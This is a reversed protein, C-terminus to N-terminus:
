DLPRKRRGPTNRFDGESLKQLLTKYSIKLLRAAAARNWGVRELAERLAAQEAERAARRGIERLGLGLEMREGNKAKMRSRLESRVQDEDGLVIWRKVLNELERVNGPWDYAGFLELLDNAIQPEPRNFEGAFRRRFHEVLCPIEERRERLPPVALSVVTLLRYLDQRFVSATVMAQIDRASSALIRVDISILERGGARFLQNDQLAHVIRPQLGAPLDGIEELLLTGGDALELKGLKHPTGHADPEHGFIEAELLDAPLSACSVKQWPKGSRRSLYHIARAVLEKGTGPEGQILVPSDTEAVRRVLEEVAQMKESRRFLSEYQSFFLLRDRDPAMAGGAALAQPLLRQVVSRLEDRSTPKKLFETAGARTAEVATRVDAHASLVIIPAQGGNSRLHRLLQHGPVDSIDLDLLILSPSEAQFRDLAESGTSATLPRFGLQSLVYSFTASTAPDPDIVLAVPKVAFVFSCASYWVSASKM